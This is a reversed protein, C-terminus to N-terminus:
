RSRGSVLSSKNSKRILRAISLRLDRQSGARCGHVRQGALGLASSVCWVMWMRHMSERQVKCAAEAAQRECESRCTSAAEAAACRYRDRECAARNGVQPGDGLLYRALIGCVGLAHLPSAACRGQRAARSRAAARTTPARASTTQAASPIARRGHTSCLRTWEEVCAVGRVIGRV